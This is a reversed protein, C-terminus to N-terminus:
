RWNSATILTISLPESRLMYHCPCWQCLCTQKIELNVNCNGKEIKEIGLSERYWGNIVISKTSKIFTNEGMRKEYRKIFRGDIKLVKCFISQRAEHNIIKAIQGPRQPDSVWIYPMTIDEALAKYVKYKQITM